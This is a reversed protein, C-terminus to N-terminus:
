PGPTGRLVNPASCAMTWGFNQNPPGCHMQGVLLPGTHGKIRLFILLIPAM